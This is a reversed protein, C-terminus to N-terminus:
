GRGPFQNFADLNLKDLQPCGLQPLIGALKSDLFGLTQGLTCVLGGLITPIGARATAYAFCFLNNGELLTQANLVGGTVNAVDFGVFSDVKGTNGGIKGAAPVALIVAVVEAVVDVLTYPTPPKYWNSPIREEGPVWTLTEPTDGVISFFSKLTSQDLYGEPRSAAHNAFFNAVFNHAATAVVLGSWPAFYFNPNTSISQQITFNRHQVLIDCTYDATAPDSQLNYLAKFKDRTVSADDSEYNNHSQDIGGPASLIGPLLTSKGPSRGISWTLAIPDGIIAISYAVLVTATDVGMNFVEVLASISEVLNTNGNRAFYGHNSLVNLGPCPGRTDSAGPAKFAHVGTIDVLQSESFTPARKNRRRERADAHLQPINARKIIDDVIKEFTALNLGRSEAAYQPFALVTTLPLASALLLKFNVM